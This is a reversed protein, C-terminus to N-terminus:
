SGETAAPVAEEAAETAAPAAEETAEGAAPAAEETAAPLESAQSSPANWVAYIGVGLLITLMWLGLTVRMPAKINKFRPVFRELATKETWMMLVLYTAMLQAVAGTLLHLSPLLVRVDNLSGPVGPLVGNAYSGFMLGIIFVWNLSTVASMVLKHQPSFRRTRAFYFGLLMAPFMAFIYALLVFQSTM